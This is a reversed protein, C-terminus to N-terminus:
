EKYHDCDNQRRNQDNATFEFVTVRIEDGMTEDVATAASIFSRTGDASLKVCQMIAVAEASQLSSSSTINVLAKRRSRTIDAHQLDLSAITNGAAIKARDAGSASATGM